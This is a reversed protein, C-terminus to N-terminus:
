QVAQICALVTSPEAHACAEIKAQKEQHEFYAPLYFFGLTGIVVVVIMFLCGLNESVAAVASQKQKSTSDSQDM